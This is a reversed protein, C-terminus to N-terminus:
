LEEAFKQVKEFVVYGVVLGIIGVAAAQLLTEVNPVQKYYLIQQYGLIVPTMPNLRFLTRFKEPVMDVTYLIPTLYMWAMTIIGLIYELDRFYVALASTLMCLGLALIYEILIVLPLVCVAHINIGYKSIVLVAFIVVFTLLMNILRSTVYSIPLVIRPFYIKKVLNEQNVVCTSGSTVSINFFNWPILSVFLFIPFNEIGSQLIVSFVITYVVMQMLPNIFTWLFGLVSAKYKGRLERKILSAIMERYDYIEHIRNFMRMGSWLIHCLGRVPM